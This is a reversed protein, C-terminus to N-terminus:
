VAVVQQRPGQFREALGRQGQSFSRNYHGNISGDVAAATNRALGVLELARIGQSMDGIGGEGYLNRLELLLAKGRQLLFPDRFFAGAHGVDTRKLAFAIIAGGKIGSRTSSKFTYRKPCIDEASKRNRLQQFETNWYSLDFLV